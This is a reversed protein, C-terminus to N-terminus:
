HGKVIVRMMRLNIVAFRYAQVFVNKRRRLTRRDPLPAEEIRPTYM